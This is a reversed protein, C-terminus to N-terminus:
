KLKDGNAFTHFTTQKVKIGKVNSAQDIKLENGGIECSEYDEIDPVSGNELVQYEQM